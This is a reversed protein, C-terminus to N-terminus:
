HATTQSEIFAGAAQYRRYLADYQRANAAVPQFQQEMGAGMAAQAAEVRPHLGAATAAFMAAGLACAQEARAVAIPTNLVDACVQLVFPSKRAIGGLAIVRDIRIGEDRFREIIARSGFATAEVLTRFLRPADSGLNLGLLAGTLAQNAYPTRRGNLWDVAVPGAPLIPLKAAAASLAPILKDEAEPVGAAQLGFALVGRFWAYIDGFASQGAEMGLMGPTISGDVQGCIGAILKDGIEATPAILMDCTSTGMVKSLTYAQIEAGVAGMHADFAGAGVAVGAGLGLRAAWEPTLTGVRHDATYTDRFLRARLGALAPDLKALFAESPLGDWSAHWMAKHGAACRSRVLKLPDTEGTLLGPLWDCQEVWSYAAQRVAPDARLVHLIKAFFWESSYVGGCYRTFDTGGWSRAADNIQAAEKVATHDKWLVFMANPNEAFAPLLALPTGQRDVAV